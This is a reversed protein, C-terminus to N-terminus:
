HSFCFGFVIPPSSASREQRLKEIENSSLDAVNDLLENSLAILKDKMDQLHNSAEPCLGLQM